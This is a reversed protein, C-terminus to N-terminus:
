VRWRLHAREGRTCLLGGLARTLHASPPWSSRDQSAYDVDAWSGDDRLTALLKAAQNPSTKPLESDDLLREGHDTSEHLCYERFQRAVQETPTEGWATTGALVVVLAVTLNRITRAM